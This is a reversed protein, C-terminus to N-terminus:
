NKALTVPVSPNAQAELVPKRALTPDYILVMGLDALALSHVRLQGDKEKILLANVGKTNGSRAGSMVRTVADGHANRISAIIPEGVSKITITYTGPQLITTGWHIRSTLTFRGEFAPSQGQAQAAGAFLFSISLVALLVITRAIRRNRQM